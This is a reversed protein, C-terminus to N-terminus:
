MKQKKRSKECLYKYYPNCHNDESLIYKQIIRDELIGDFVDSDYWELNRHYDALWMMDLKRCTETFAEFWGGSTSDLDYYSDEVILNGNEDLVFEGSDDEEFFEVKEFVHPGMISALEGAFAYYFYEPIKEDIEKPIEYEIHVERGTGVLPM